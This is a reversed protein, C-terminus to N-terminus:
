IMRRAAPTSRWSSLSHIESNFSKKRVKVITSFPKSSPSYASSRPVNLETLLVDFPVRSHEIADYTKTRAEDVCASFAQQPDRKFRLTLHNLLLGVTGLVVSDNRNVDAIGITIDEEEEDTYRLLM